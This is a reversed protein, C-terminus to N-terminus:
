GPEMLSNSLTFQDFHIVSVFVYYYHCTVGTTSSSFNIHTGRKQRLSIIDNDIDNEKAMEAEAVTLQAQRVHVISGGEGGGGGAEM